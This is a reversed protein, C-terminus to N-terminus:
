WYWLGGDGVVFVMCDFQFGEVLVMQQGLLVDCLVCVLGFVVGVCQVFVDIVQGDLGVYVQGFFFFVVVGEEVVVLVVVFVEVGM